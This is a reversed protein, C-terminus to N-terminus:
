RLEAWFNLEIVQFYTCLKLDILKWASHTRTGKDHWCSADNM